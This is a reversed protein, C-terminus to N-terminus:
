PFLVIRGSDRPEASGTGKSLTIENPGTWAVAMSYSADKGLDPSQKWGVPLRRDKPDILRRRETRSLLFERSAELKGRDLTLIVVRSQEVEALENLALDALTRREDVKVVVEPGGAPIVDVRQLDVIFDNVLKYDPPLYVSGVPGYVKIGAPTQMGVYAMVVSKDASTVRLASAQALTPSALDLEYEVECKASAVPGYGLPQPKDAHVREELAACAAQISAFSGLETGSPEPAPRDLIKLAAEFIAKPPAGDLARRAWATALAADGALSAARSAEVALVSGLPDLSRSETVLSLAEAGKKQQGLTKAQTLSELVKKRASVMAETNPAQREALTRREPPEPAPTAVSPSASPAAPKKSSAKDSQCRCASSLSGAVVAAICAALYAKNVVSKESSGPVHGREAFTVPLLSLTPRWCAM